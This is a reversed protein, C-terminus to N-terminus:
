GALVVESVSSNGSSRDLIQFVRAVIELSTDVLICEEMTFMTSQVPDDEGRIQYKRGQYNPLRNKM